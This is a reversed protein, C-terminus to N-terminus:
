LCFIMASYHLIPVNGPAKTCLQLRNASFLVNLQARDDKFKCTMVNPIQTGLLCHEQEQQIMATIPGFKPTFIMRKPTRDM